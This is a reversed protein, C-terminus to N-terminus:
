NHNKFYRYSAIYVCITDTAFGCINANRHFHKIINIINNEPYVNLCICTKCIRGTGTEQCNILSNRWLVDVNMVHTNLLLAFSLWYYCKLLCTSVSHPWEIPSSMRYINVLFIQFYLCSANLAFSQNIQYFLHSGLDHFLSVSVGVRLSFACFSHQVNPILLRHPFLGLVHHFKLLPLSM